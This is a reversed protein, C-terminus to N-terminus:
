NSGGINKTNNPLTTAMDGMFSAEGIMEPKVTHNATDYDVISVSANPVWKLTSMKELELGRWECELARIPTAHIAILVTKGDNEEAIKWVEDIIRRAMNRVSEGGDPISNIIDYMFTNFGEPYRELIEGFELNEWEGAYIERLGACPVPTLGHAAAIIRGTEYARVLDSAYAVDIKATKLYQAAAYAQAIGKETLEGDTHGYFRKNLNGTSEGHRVFIIRTM